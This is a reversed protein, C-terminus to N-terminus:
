LYLGKPIYVFTVYPTLDIVCYKEILFFLSLISLSFLSLGSVESISELTFAISKSTFLLSLILILSIFLFAFIITLKSIFLLESSLSLSIKSILFLLLFSLFNSYIRLM